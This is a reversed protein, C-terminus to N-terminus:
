NNQSILRPTAKTRKKPKGRARICSKKVAKKYRLHKELYKLSNALRKRKGASLKKIAQKMLRHTTKMKKPIKKKDKSLEVARRKLRKAKMKNIKYLSKAMLANKKFNDCKTAALTSSGFFFVSSLVLSLLITKM